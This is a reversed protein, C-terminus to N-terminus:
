EVRERWYNLLDYLTKEIPISPTWGTIKNIKGIDAWLLPIDTKRFRSKKIKIEFNLESFSLLIELIERISYIKGSGINYIEGTKGKQALLYLAEIGDRVDTFDRIAELNGVELVPKRLGKEAEAIRKAFSPAAFKPSQGPGIQNFFRVIISKIGYVKRYFLAAEEAALKSVGYHSLPSAPTKEKIPQHKKPVNGYVEASSALVFVPKLKASALAELVEVTGLFNVNYTQKFQQWSEGVHSQGALHFVIDPKYDAIISLDDRGIILIKESTECEIGSIGYVEEGKEKLYKYLYRGIFGCSGTILFKM